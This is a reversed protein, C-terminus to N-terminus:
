AFIIFGRLFGIGNRENLFYNVGAMVEVISSLDVREPWLHAMELSLNESLPLSTAM